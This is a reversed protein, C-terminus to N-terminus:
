RKEVKGKGPKLREGGGQIKLRSKDEYMNQDARDFVTAVCADNEFRSMGGAIVVSGDENLAKANYEGLKAMYDDINKLTKDQAVVAFEDGGIRFVSGGKFTSTIVKCADRLYKDGVKHGETDNVTKLDNVDLIVIAFGENRREAIQINMQEEFELYAHRNRAGTLADINAKRQAQALRKAYEEEQRVQSDINNIGVILRPGENEVLMAAKLQVHVPKTGMMIRYSLTFLGSHLIENMVNEKNFVELFMQIDDPYNFRTASERTTEFFKEGEKAVSFVEYGKTSSFERFQETKPDVVYVCIFDGTLANLRSYAVQEEKMREAEKRQQMQEDIDAVGITIFRHDDEMRTVRMSVYTPGNKGMLRYTFIFNNNHDLAELLNKRDMANVFAARDDPYVYWSAEMKCEEFFRSGKRAETLVNHEGHTRYEVFDETDLNVYFLSSYGQVLSQAIHSYIVANRRAAEYAEKNTANERQINVIDTIDQCMGLICLRGTTDVYKLKTTQFQRPNGAADFVDETFIFPQDMSLAMRDDDVFHAATDADFIQADTLGVVGDPTKKHAYDAFAQNCALYIGSKADKTFTMGPMNDLLSTITDKLEAIRKATEAEKEAETLRKGLKQTDRYNNLMMAVVIVFLWLSVLSYLTNTRSIERAQSQLFEVRNERVVEDSDDTPHSEHYEFIRQVANNAANETARSVWMMSAFLVMVLLIIWVVVRQGFEHISDKRIIARFYALGVVAWFIFLIYSETEMAHFPLLGPILLLLIFVTMLIMGAFGTYKETKRRIQKAHKFVAYSLLAYILTAGLTTVDVIWGIATRGLFPILVSSAIILNFARSPVGSRDLKSFTEHAEGSRAAAFILRSLAMMNGILSTLIVAFLAFMLVTVGSKGLYYNAAYFAPVAKIGELNGMDKIYELWSSYEPPYASVSLLSVFLYLLTTVIVSGILIGKVKRVPFAYEESFHSINEFGIFAWPSIAAIRVIQSFAGSGEAYLPNYSFSRDHKFIAIVACLAFAAAFLLAMFCMVKNLAKTGKVCLLGVLVLALMSLLAEGMWVEYGFIRYHFGFQFAKGLFFRAFLPVSTINAWLVALYTLLIFWMALFGLDKGGVKKEFAYIGGADPKFRIMYQLNWTIVFVVAMGILLGFITGLIGSKQLYTNCTVIFSGWGISTGISFSWMGLPSFRPQLKETYRM